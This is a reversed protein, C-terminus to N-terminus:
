VMNHQHDAFKSFAPVPLCGKIVCGWLSVLSIRLVFLFAVIFFTLTISLLYLLLSQKLM